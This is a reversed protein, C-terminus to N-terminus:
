INNFCILPMKLEMTDEPALRVMAKLSAIAELNQPSIAESGQPVKPIFTQCFFFSREGIGM